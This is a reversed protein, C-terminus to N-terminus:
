YTLGQISKSSKKFVFLLLLVTLVISVFDHYRKEYVVDSAISQKIVSAQPNWSYELIEGNVNKMEVLDSKYENVLSTKLRVMTEQINDSPHQQVVRGASALLEAFIVRYPVAKAAFKSSFLSVLRSVTTDSGAEIDINLGTNVTLKGSAADLLIVYQHELYRNTLLYESILSRQEVFSFDFGEVSIDCGQGFNINRSRAWRMDGGTMPLAKEREYVLAVAYLLAPCSLVDSYSLADTLIIAGADNKEWLDFELGLSMASQAFM